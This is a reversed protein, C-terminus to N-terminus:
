SKEVKVRVDALHSISRQISMPIDEWYPLIHITVFDTVNKM